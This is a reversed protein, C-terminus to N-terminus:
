APTEVAEPAVVPKPRGVVFRLSAVALVGLVMAWENWKISTLLFGIVLVTLVHVTPGFPLTM